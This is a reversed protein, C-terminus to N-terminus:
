LFLDRLVNLDVISGFEPALLEVVYTENRSGYACSPRQAMSWVIVPAQVPTVEKKAASISM